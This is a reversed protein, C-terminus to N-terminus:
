VVKLIVIDPLEQFSVLNGLGKWFHFHVTLTEPFPLGLFTAPWSPSEPSGASQGDDMSRYTDRM